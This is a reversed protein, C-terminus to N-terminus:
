GGMYTNWKAINATYTANKTPIFLLKAGYNVRSSNLVNRDAAYYFPGCDEKHGFSGGTAVTMTNDLNPVTWLGDGVPALSTANQSCEVPMYVWDYKENGYGMASIYGLYSSPLNFGVAEYNSGSTNPTYNFDTCIYPIGGGQTSNGTVNLGGIMSWLNGWPNEMGRYCIARKGDTNVTSIVGEVDMQTSTAHGTGNGLSATSGTIFMCKGDSGEPIYTLGEEIASQGNMTGFEVIELMQNASEAAMNMIHWGTGRARAASEAQAITIYNVPKVGAISTLKDSVIAGDYAPLLVYDLDGAFIPALKFGSQETPSILLTEHRVAKGYSLETSVRIIRKYYFKPQYIMVQGNSGDETYNNDGYFANITGDDAVNCKVRGGYMSYKDFDSGISKGVAEQTRTFTNNTYDIDLGVADKAVYTGAQLLAEIIADDTALSAVLNGNEDVIVLHGADDTTINGNMNGSGSGSSGGSPINAIANTVYQETAYGNLASAGIKQSLAETIAKQTMAGDENSGTLKYLKTITDSDQTDDPYTTVLNITNAGAAENVSISMELNKIEDDVDELDLTNIQASQATELADQATELLTAAASQADAIDQAAATVTAIAAAADEEAKAAKAAAANAKAVYADTKGQPTMAKALMIDIIDM